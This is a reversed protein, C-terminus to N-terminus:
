GLQNNIMSIVCCTIHCMCAQHDDVPKYYHSHASVSRPEVINAVDDTMPEVSQPPHNVIWLIPLLQM